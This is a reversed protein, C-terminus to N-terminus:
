TRPRRARTIASLSRRLSRSKSSGDVPRKTTSLGSVVESPGVEEDPADPLCGAEEVEFDARGAGGEGLMGDGELLQEGAGLLGQGPDGGLDRARGQAGDAGPLQPVV